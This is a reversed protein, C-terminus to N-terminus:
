LKSYSTGKEESIIYIHVILNVIDVYIKANKVNTSLWHSIKNLIYAKQGSWMNLAHFVQSIYGM